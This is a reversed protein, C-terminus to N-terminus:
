GRRCWIPGILKFLMDGIWYLAKRRRYERFHANHADSDGDENFANAHCFEHWLVCERFFVPAKQMDEDLYITSVCSKSGNQYITLTCMTRGYTIGVGGAYNLDVYGGWVIADPVSYESQWTRLQLEPDM